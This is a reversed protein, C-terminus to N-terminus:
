NSDNRVVGNLIKTTQVVIKIGLNNIITLDKGSFTKKGALIALQKANDCVPYILENGYVSKVKITITM